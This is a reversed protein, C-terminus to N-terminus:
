KGLCSGDSETSAADGTPNIIGATTKQVKTGKARGPISAAPKFVPSSNGSVVDTDINNSSPVKQRKSPPQLILTSTSSGSSVQDNATDLPANDDMAADVQVTGSDPFLEPSVTERDGSASGSVSSPENEDAPSPPPAAPSHDSLDTESIIMETEMSFMDLNFLSDDSDSGATDETEPVFNSDDQHPAGLAAAKQTSSDKPKFQSMALDPLTNEPWWDM